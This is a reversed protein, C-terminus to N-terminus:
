TLPIYPRNGSPRETPVARFQEGLGGCSAISIASVSWKNDGYEADAVVATLTIGAARTRRLLTLALRWKEHFPVAAPIRARARRAPDSTWAEPLYLSAGM